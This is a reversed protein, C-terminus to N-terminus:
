ISSHLVHYIDDTAPSTAQTQKFMISIFQAGLCDVILTAGTVQDTSISKVNSEGAGGTATFFRNRLAGTNEGFVLNMDQQALTPGPATTGNSYLLQPIWVGGLDRCFNWGFIRCSGEGIPKSYAQLKLYNANGGIVLHGTASTPQTRTPVPDTFDAAQVKSYGYNKVDTTLQVQAM